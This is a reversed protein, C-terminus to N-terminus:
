NAKRVKQRKKESFYYFVLWRGGGIMGMVGMLILTKRFDYLGLIRESDSTALVVGGSVLFLIYTMGTLWERHEIGSLPILCLILWMIIVSIISKDSRSLDLFGELIERSSPVLYWVDPLITQLM